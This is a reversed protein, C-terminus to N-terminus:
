LCMHKLEQMFRRGSNDLHLVPRRALQLQELGHAFGCASRRFGIPSPAAGLSAATCTPSHAHPSIKQSLSSKNNTREVLIKYNECQIQKPPQNQGNQKNKHLDIGWHTIWQSSVQQGSLSDRGCKPPLLPINTLTHPTSQKTTVDKREPPTAQVTLPDCCLMSSLPPPNSLLASSPQSARAFDYRRDSPPCSAGEDDRPEDAIGQADSDGGGCDGWASALWEHSRCETLATV